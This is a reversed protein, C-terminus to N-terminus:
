QYCLTTVYCNSYGGSQTWTACDCEAYSSQGSGCCVVAGTQTGDPCTTSYATCDGTALAPVALALTAITLLFLQKMSSSLGLLKSLTNM